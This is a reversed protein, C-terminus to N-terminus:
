GPNGDAYDWRFIHREHGTTTWEEHHIIYHRGARPAPGHWVEVHTDHIDIQSIRIM